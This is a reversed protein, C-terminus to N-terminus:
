FPERRIESSYYWECLGSLRVFGAAINFRSLGFSVAIGTKVPIVSSSSQATLQMDNLLMRGFGDRKLARDNGRHFGPDM